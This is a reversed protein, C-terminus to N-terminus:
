EYRLTVMPDVTVARRAPALSAVLAVVVSVLVSGGLTLGDNAQVGHLMGQLVKSAALTAGLGVLAGLGALVLSQRLVLGFVDRRHAGLAMRLGFERLRRGVAFSVAAFLGVASLTVGLAAVASSLVAEVWDMFMVEQMHDHITVASILVAEPAQEKVLKKLVSVIAGAEGATEVLLMSEGSPMQAFPVYLFPEPPEHISNIRADEVVGVISTDKGRIRLSQTLADQGPFYRRAFAESVMVVRPGDATDPAGFMRGRLVRTGLTEFYGPGVENYRIGPQRQNEPLNLGPFQVRLTAGGGSSWMPLRRAYTARRVGPFAVARERLGEYMATIRAPDEERGPYMYLGAINRASDFGPREARTALFSRLLLGATNLLVVALGIQAVVVASRGVFRWRPRKASEGRLAPVLDEKSARLAPALGFLLVTLMTALLTYGFVRGDMRLGLDYSFPMKPLLAPMAGLLWGALLLGGVAGLVALVASETIMQRVLRGRTAGMAQRIGIERRRGEAQAVLLGAVNGCAIWLVLGVIMLMLMVPGKAREAQDVSVLKSTLAINKNAVPYEAAFRRGVAAVQSLAETPSVGAKLRGLVSFQRSQREAIDSRANTTLAWAAPSLWLDTSFGRNLGPFSQRMVGAVTVLGDNLQITKGVIHPDGGFRRQWLRYSMVVAAPADLTSDTERRLTRGLLPELGLTEFFNGDVVDVAMLENEGDRRLMSGRSSYATMASFASVTQALERYEVFYLGETRHGDALADVRAIEEPAAVPMPRLFLADAVSFATSNVGIGLVLSMVAVSTWGPRAALRRAAQKLDQWFGSM